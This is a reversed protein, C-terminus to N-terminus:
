HELAELIIEGKQVLYVDGYDNNLYGCSRHSFEWLYIELILLLRM